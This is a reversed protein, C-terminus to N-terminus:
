PEEFLPIQTTEEAPKHQFSASKNLDVKEFVAVLQQARLALPENIRQTALQVYREIIEYGAFQRGLHHAVKLTQGSGTFPDLILDGPYSYLQILRYPIEEPFPAPHDIVGPPVPAIHWINNAIDLTFLRDIPYRAAEKEAQTRGAYPKPGPKQFVLIYENMINPYYYGPYPNQISVGARKVGATCKHWIIDQHFLWGSATLRAVTDFPVPYLRGELLVTGIVIACFGGPRTVRYVEQFIRTLWDLYEEYDRYGNAYRRTRYYQESNTAHIDYDIANWYPPSTVTLAVCDDPLEPMHECSHCYITNM